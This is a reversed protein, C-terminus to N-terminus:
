PKIMKESSRILNDLRKTLHNKEYVDNIYGTELEKYKKDNNEFLMQQEKYQALEITLRGNKVKADRNVILCRESMAYTDYTPATDAETNSSTGQLKTMLIYDDQNEREAEDNFVGALFDYKKANGQYGSEQQGNVLVRNHHNGLDRKRTGHMIRKVRLWM